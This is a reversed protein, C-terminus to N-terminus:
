GPSKNRQNRISQTRFRQDYSERNASRTQENGAANCGKEGAFRPPSVCNSLQKEARDCDYCRVKNARQQTDACRSKCAGGIAHIVATSELELKKEFYAVNLPLARRLSNQNATRNVVSTLVAIEITQGLVVWYTFSM